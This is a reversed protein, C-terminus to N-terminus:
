PNKEKAPEKIEYGAADAKFKRYDSFRSLQNLNASMFLLARVSLNVDQLSPLWIEDNVRAQEFIVATGPRLSLVGGVASLKENLRVEARTVQRAESDVWLVGSMRQAFSESLNRAKVDPKPQFDFVIVERGRFRERRASTFDCMRLFVSLSLHLDGSEEPEAGKSRREAAKREREDVAHIAKEVRKIEKADADPSLPRGNDKIRREIKYGKYFYVEQTHSDTEVVEGKKNVERETVEEICTYSEQLKELQEQNGMVARLLEPVDPLADSATRPFDFLADDLARNHEVRDLTVRLVTEGRRLEFAFPELVGDLRRYDGYSITETGAEAPQEERLLLYSQADIWIRRRAAQQTTLEIVFARRGGVQEQGTLVARTQARKYDLFRDNRYVAEAKFSVGAAGTLTHLGERGDSRWASRGNYAAQSEDRGLALEILMRDPRRLRLTFRGSEGRAPNTVTGTYITTEIRHLQSTGGVAKLHWNIIQDASQASATAACAFLLCCPYLVALTLSRLRQRTATTPM